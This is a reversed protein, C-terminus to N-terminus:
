RHRDKPPTPQAQLKKALADHEQALVAMQERLEEIRRELYGIRVLAQERESLQVSAPATTPKDDAKPQGASANLLLTASMILILALRKM